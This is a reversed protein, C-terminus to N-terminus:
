LSGSIDCLDLLIIIGNVIWLIHVSLIDFSWINGYLGM